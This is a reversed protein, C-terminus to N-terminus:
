DVKGMEKPKRVKGYDARRGALFVGMREFTRESTLTELGRVLSTAKRQIRSDLM